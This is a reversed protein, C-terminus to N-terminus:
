HGVPILVMTVAALTTVAATVAWGAAPRFRHVAVAGLSAVVLVILWSTLSPHVDIFRHTAPAYYPDYTLSRLVAVAAAVPAVVHGLAREAPPPQRQTMFALGIAAATEVLLAAVSAAKAPGHGAIAGTV